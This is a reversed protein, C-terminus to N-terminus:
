RRHEHEAPHDERFEDLEDRVEHTIWNVDQQPWHGDEEAPKM